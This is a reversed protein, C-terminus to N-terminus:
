SPSSTVGLVAAGHAVAAWAHQAFDIRTIPSHMHESMSGLARPSCAPCSERTWQQRLLFAVLDRIVTSYASDTESRARAVHAAAALAEGFGAAGTNHPPILNGFGFGGVFEPAVGSDRSFILRSKFTVYDLCFREYNDNRQRRLAAKATLCNWNEEVFFFPRIPIDWHEEAVHRMGNQIAAALRPQDALHNLHSQEAVLTELLTLALLAQGPAYLAESGSKIPNQRRWDYETAFSGDSRQLHLVFRALHAIAVDFEDGVRNRCTLLAVLPLASDGLRVVRAKKTLALAWLDDRERRHELLLHLGRRAADTVAASSSGVDCLAFLTGAQRALNLERTEAKRTFPDLTYRFQGNPLQADLIHKEFATNATFVRQQTIDSDVPHLRVLPTVVGSPAVATSQSSWAVLSDDTPARRANKKRLTRALDELSAGFKLDPLFPLPNHTVFRSQAVLQWPAYCGGALCVGDLGPRLSLAALWRPAGLARIETLRDIAIAGGGARAAINKALLTALEELTQGHACTARSKGDRDVYHAVATARAQSPSDECRIVARHDPAAPDGGDNSDSFQANRQAVAPALVTSVLHDWTRADTAPDSVVLPDGSAHQLQTLGALAGITVLALVTMGLTRDAGRGTGRWTGRTRILGWLATPLTLFAVLGWIAILVASMGQGLGGYLRSLYVGSTAVVWTTWGLFLLAGFASVAWVRHRWRDSVHPLLFSLSTVLHATGLLSCLAVFLSAKDWPLVYSWAFVGAQVLNVGAIWSREVAGFARVDVAIAPEGRQDPRPEAQAFPQAAPPTPSESPPRSASM